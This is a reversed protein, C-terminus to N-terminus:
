HFYYFYYKVFLYHMNFSLNLITFIRFNSNVFNLKIFYTEGKLTLLILLNFHFSDLNLYYKIIFNSTLNIVYKFYTFGFDVLYVVIVKIIVIFVILQGIFYFLYVEFNVIIIKVTIIFYYLFNIIIIVFNLWILASFM